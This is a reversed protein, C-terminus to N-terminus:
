KKRDHVTKLKVIELSLTGRPITVRVENGEEQGVLAMGVPSSISLYDKHDESLEEPLVLQYTKKRM